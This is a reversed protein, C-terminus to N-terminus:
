EAISVLRNMVSDDSEKKIRKGPNLEAAARRGVM